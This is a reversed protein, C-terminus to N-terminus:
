PTEPSTPSEPLLMAIIDPEDRDAAVRMRAVLERAPLGSADLLEVYSEFDALRAVSTATAAACDQLAAEAAALRPEEAAWKKKWFDLAITGSAMMGGPAPAPGLRSAVASRRAAMAAEIDVGLEERLERAVTRATSAVLGRDLLFEAELQGIAAAIYRGQLERADDISFAANTWPQAQQWVLLCRQRIEHFMDRAKWALLEGVTRSSARLSQALNEQAVRLRTLRVLELERDISNLLDDLKSDIAELRTMVSDFGVVSIAFNAVSAVAGVMSALNMRELVPALAPPPALAVRALGRTPVLGALMRGTKMDVLRNARENLSVTKGLLPWWKEAPMFTPVPM